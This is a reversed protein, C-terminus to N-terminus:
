LPLCLVLLSRRVTATCEHEDDGVDAVVARGDDDTRGRPRGTFREREIEGDGEVGEYVRM